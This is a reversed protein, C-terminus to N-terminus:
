NALDDESHDDSSLGAGPLAPIVSSSQPAAAPTSGAGDKTKRKRILVKNSGPDLFYAGDPLKELEARTGKAYNEPTSGPVKLAQAEIEPTIELRKFVDARVRKTVDELKQIAAQTEPRKAKPDAKVAEQMGFRATAIDEHKAIASMGRLLLQQPSNMVSGSGRGQKIEETKAIALGAQAANYKAENGAKAADIAQKIYGQQEKTIDKNAEQGGEIAAGASGAFAAMGPQHVNASTAKLGAALSGMMQRDRNPDLGLARGLLSVAGPREGPYPGDMGTGGANRYSQIAEPAGVGGQGGAYAAQQPIIANEIPSRQPPGDFEERTIPVFRVPRDRPLPINGEPGAMRDPPLPINGDPGAMRPAPLPIGNNSPGEPLADIRPYNAGLPNGLQDTSPMGLDPMASASTTPMPPMDIQPNTPQANGLPDMMPADGGGFGGAGGMPMPNGNTGISGGGVELIWDLLGAM